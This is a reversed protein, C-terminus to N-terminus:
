GIVRYGGDLTGAAPEGHRPAAYAPDTRPAAAGAAPDFLTLDQTYFAPEDVLRTRGPFPYTAEGAKAVPREAWFATGSGWLRALQQWRAEYLRFDEARYQATTRFSFGIDAITQAHGCQGDAYLGQEWLSDYGTEAQDRAAAHAGRDAEIAQQAEDLSQDKLTGTLGRYQDALASGFHGSVSLVWKDAVVSGTSVVTGDVQVSGGVVAGGPGWVYASTVSPGGGLYDAVATRAWTQASACNVGVHGAGQGADVYYGAGPGDVGARHYILDAWACVASRAAKLHIGYQFVDEGVRDRWGAWGTQEARSEVLVGGAAGLEMNAGAHVRVDRETASVDIGNRARVVADTGALAVLRRGPQLILDGPCAITVNGGAMRIESGSGDGVAVGGDDLLDVYSYTPYYAVEQYRHDVRVRTPAPPPLANRGALAAFPIEAVGPTGLDAALAAEEPLHYDRAHYHFGVVGEWNVAYTHADMLGLLRTMGPEPGGASLDGTVRHPPGAGHHGSARYTEPTDGAAAEPRRVAKAAPILLRKVLRVGKASQVTWAGAQTVTEDFLGVYRAPDAYRHLGASGVPPAVVVRKGGQGAYGNFHRTRHFPQQDDAAPEYKSYHPEAVQQAAADRERHPDVDPAYAGLQEWPYPTFGEAHTFEGQDDLAEVEWGGTARIQLNHGSLRALQDRYFAWVGTNEDARLFAMASDVFAAVGTEAFMGWEGVCTGDAPRGASWDVVSGHRPLTFPFSHVGETQLSHASCLSVYDSLSRTGDSQPKPEVGLIVGYPSGPHLLLYVGANPHLQNHERVGFPTLATGSLMCCPITAKAGEPQVKYWHCYAVADVVKGYVVRVPRGMALRTLPGTSGRDSFPETEDETHVRRLYRDLAAAHDLAADVRDPLSDAM